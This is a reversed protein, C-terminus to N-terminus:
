DDLKRTSDFIQTIDVTTMLREFWSKDTNTAKYRTVLTGVAAVVAGVALVINQIEEM